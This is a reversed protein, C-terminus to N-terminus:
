EGYLSLATFPAVITCDMLHLYRWLPPNTVNQEQCVSANTLNEGLIGNNVEKVVAYAELDKYPTNTTTAGSVIEVASDIGM